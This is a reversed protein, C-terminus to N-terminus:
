NERLFPQNLLNNTPNAKWKFNMFFVLKAM